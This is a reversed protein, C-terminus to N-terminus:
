TLAHLRQESRYSVRLEEAYSKVARKTRLLHQWKQLLQGCSGVKHTGIGICTNGISHAGIVLRWLHHSCTDPTKHICSQYIYHTSATAGCGFMYCSYSTTRGLLLLHTLGGLLTYRPQCTQITKIASPGKDIDTLTTIHSTAPLEQTQNLLTGVILSQRYSTRLHPCSSHHEVYIHIISHEIGLVLHYM